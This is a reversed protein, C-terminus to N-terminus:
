GCSWCGGRRERFVGGIEVNQGCSITLGCGRNSDAEIDSDHPSFRQSRPLDGERNDEPSDHEPSCRAVTQQVPWSKKQVLVTSARAAQFPPKAGGARPSRHVALQREPKTPLSGQHTTQLLFTGSPSADSEKLRECLRMRYLWVKQRSPKRDPHSLMSVKHCVSVFEKPIIRRSSRLGLLFPPTKRRPKRDQTNGQLRTAVM